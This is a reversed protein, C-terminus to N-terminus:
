VFDFNRSLYLDGPEVPDQEGLQAVGWEGGEALGYGDDSRLDGAKEVGAQM